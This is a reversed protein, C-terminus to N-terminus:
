PKVGKYIHGQLESILILDAQNFIENLNEPEILIYQTAGHQDVVKAETPHGKSATGIVITATLGILDTVSIAYSENRPILPKLVRCAISVGPLNIMLTVPIAIAWSLVIGFYEHTLSQLIFGYMSWGGFFVVLWILMPMSGFGLWSFSGFLGTAPATLDFEPSGSDGFIDFGLIASIFLLGIMLACVTACVAFFWNDQHTFLYTLETFM